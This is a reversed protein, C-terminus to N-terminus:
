NCDKALPNDLCEKSITAGKKREARAANAKATAIRADIEAKEKQLQDLKAKAADRDAQSQAGVVADTAETMRKQLDTADQELREVIAQAERAEEVSQTAHEEAKKLAALDAEAKEAVMAIQVYGSRQDTTMKDRCTTLETATKVCEIVAASWKTAVCSKALERKLGESWTLREVAADCAKPTAAEPQKCGVTALLLACVALPRM